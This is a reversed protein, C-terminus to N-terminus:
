SFTTIIRRARRPCYTDTDQSAAFLAVIFDAIRKEDTEKELQETFFDRLRPQCLIVEGAEVQFQLYGVYGGFDKNKRNPADNLLEEFRGSM